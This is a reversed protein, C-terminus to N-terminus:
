YISRDARVCGRQLRKEIFGACPIKKTRHRGRSSACYRGVEQSNTVVAIIPISTGCVDMTLNASGSGGQVAGPIYVIGRALQGATVM